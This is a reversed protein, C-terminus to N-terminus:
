WYYGTSGMGVQNRLGANDFRIALIKLQSPDAEYYVVYEHFRPNGHPEAQLISVGDSKAMITLVRPLFKESTTLQYLKKEM